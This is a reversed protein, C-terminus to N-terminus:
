PANRNIGIAPGPDIRQERPPLVVPDVGEDTEWPNDPDWYTGDPHDRRARRNGTQGFPQETLMGRAGMGRATGRGATASGQGEEGIVGGIPNVRRTGPRTAGPQGLGGGPVGGILGGPPMARIGEPIRTGPPLVGEDPLGVVRGVGNSPPSLTGGSPLPPLISPSSIPSSTSSPFTPALPGIGSSPTTVPLTTGGLVLGPQTIGTSATTNGTGTPFTVSPRSSSSGASSSGIAIPTIPPIPPAVYANSANSASKDDSMIAPEYRMPTVIKVQAQVLDSSVSSMLTIAQQRLAEQRGPAVPPEEGSPSPSPIPTPTPSTQQQAKASNFTDLLQQNSAYENYIKQMKPQALGISLTAAAFADHNALSAEYTENLSKLLDDLRAVYAASAANKAPPWVAALNDRYGQVQSMHEALLEYSREWGTLLEYYQDTKPNQALAQMMDVTMSSWDTGGGGGGAAALM